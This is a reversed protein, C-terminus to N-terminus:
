RPGFDSCGRKKTARREESVIEGAIGSDSNVGVGFQFRGTKSGRANVGLDIPDSQRKATLLVLMSQPEQEDDLHLGGIVLTHGLEIGISSEVRTTEVKPIQLTLPQKLGAVRLTTEQVGELQSVTLDYNLWLAGDERLLPRVHFSTGEKVVRIQPQHEKTLGVM